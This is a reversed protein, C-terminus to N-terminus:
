SRKFVRCMRRVAAAAFYHFYSRTADGFYNPIGRPTGYGVMPCAGAIPLSPRSVCAGM